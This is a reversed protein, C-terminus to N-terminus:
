GGPSWGGDAADKAVRAANDLFDKVDQGWQGPKGTYSRFKSDGDGLAKPSLFKLYKSESIAKPLVQGARRLIPTKEALSVWLQGKPVRSMGMFSLVRAGGSAVAGGGPIFMPREGGPSFPMGSRTQTAGIRFFSNEDGEVPIIDNSGALASTFIAEGNKDAELGLDSILQSDSTKQISSNRTEIAFTGDKQKKISSNFWNIGKTEKRHKKADDKSEFLGYHDSWLIPNNFGFRYPTMSPMWEAFPDIQMWKGISADYTRFRALDLGLEDSHEIGNFRYLKAGVGV